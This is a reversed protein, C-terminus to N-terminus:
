VLPKSAKELLERYQNWTLNCGVNLSKKVRGAFSLDDLLVSRPYLRAGEIYFKWDEGESKEKNSVFGDGLLYWAGKERFTWVIIDGPVAKSGPHTYPQDSTIFNRSIYSRFQAIGYPTRIRDRWDKDVNAYIVIKM